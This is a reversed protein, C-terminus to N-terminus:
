YGLYTHTDEAYVDDNLYAYKEEKSMKDFGSQEEMIIISEGVDISESKETRNSTKCYDPNLMEFPSSELEKIFKIELDYNIRKQQGHYEIVRDTYVKRIAEESIAEVKTTITEVSDIVVYALMGNHEVYKQKRKYFLRYNDLWQSDPIRDRVRSTENKLTIEYAKM